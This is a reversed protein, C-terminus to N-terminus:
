HSKGVAPDLRDGVADPRLSAIHDTEHREGMYGSINKGGGSVRLIRGEGYVWYHRVRGSIESM